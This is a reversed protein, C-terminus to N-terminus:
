FDSRNEGGAPTPWNTELSPTTTPSYRALELNRLRGVAIVLQNM